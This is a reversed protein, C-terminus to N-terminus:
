KRNHETNEEVNLNIERAVIVLGCMSNGKNRNAGWTLIVNYKHNFMHDALPM